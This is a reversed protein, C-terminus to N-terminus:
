QVLKLFVLTIDSDNASYSWDNLFNLAFFFEEFDFVHACVPHLGRAVLLILVLLKLKVLNEMLLSFLNFNELLDM